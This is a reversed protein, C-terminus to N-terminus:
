EYIEFEYYYHYLGSGGEYILWMGCVKDERFGIESTIFEVYLRGYVLIELLVICIWIKENKTCISPPELEM